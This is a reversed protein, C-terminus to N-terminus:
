AAHESGSIRSTARSPKRASTSSTPAGTPRSRRAAAPTRRSPCAASRRRTSPSGPARRCRWSTLPACRSGRGRARVDAVAAGVELGGDVAEGRVAHAHERGGRGVVGVRDALHEVLRREEVRAQPRSRARARPAARRRCPARARARGRARRRRAVARARDVDVHQQEALELVAGVRSRRGCSCTSARRKTSIGSSSSSKSSACAPRRAREGVRERRQREVLAHPQAPGGSRTGAHGRARASLGRTSRTTSTPLVCVWKPATRSPSITSCQRKAVSRESSRRRARRRRQAASSSSRPRPKARRRRSPARRSPARARAATPRRRRPAVEAM